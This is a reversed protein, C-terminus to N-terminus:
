GAAWMSSCFRMMACPARGDVLRDRLVRALHRALASRRVGRRDTTRRARAADRGGGPAVDDTLRALLTTWGPTARRRARPVSCAALEGAPGAALGAWFLLEDNDPALQAAQEYRAAPRTTAARPSWSTPRARSSTPASSCSCAACSASRTATTRSACTSARAGRSARRRPRRAARRVPPRPRRRGGGRGGDLAAMLREALAGTAREFAAAMAEPVRKTSGDHQGPLQSAPGEVDGAHRICGAGAHVAVDGRADVVGVQRM